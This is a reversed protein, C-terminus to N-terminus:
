QDIQESQKWTTNQVHCTGFLVQQGHGHSGFQAEIKKDSKLIQTNDCIGYICETLETCKLLQAFSRTRIQLNGCKFNTFATHADSIGLVASGTGDNFFYSM